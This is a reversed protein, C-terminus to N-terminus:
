VYINFKDPRGRILGTFQLADPPGIEDTAVSHYESSLAGRAELIGLRAHQREIEQRLLADIENDRAKVKPEEPSSLHREILEKYRHEELASETLCRLEGDSRGRSRVLSRRRYPTRKMELTVLPELLCLM